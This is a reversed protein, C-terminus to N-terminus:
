FFISIKTYIWDNQLITPERGVVASRLLPLSLAAPIVVAHPLPWGQMRCILESCWTAVPVGEWTGRRHLPIIIVM